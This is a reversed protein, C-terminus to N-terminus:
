KQTATAGLRIFAANRELTKQGIGKVEGLQDATKFAGHAQRYLVIAQAKSEGVGDLSEALEEASAANVNVPKGAHAMPLGVLLCLAAISQFLSKM